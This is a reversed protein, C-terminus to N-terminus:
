ESFAICKPPNGPICEVFGQIKEIIRRRLVSLVSRKEHDGEMSLRVMWERVGNAPQDKSLSFFENWQKL